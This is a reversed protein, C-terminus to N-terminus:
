AALELGPQSDADAPLHLPLVVSFVTGGSPPPVKSKVQITGGHRRVIESSVWLGLGTRTNGKTTVFPDFIQSRIDPRIGSGTDAVSLRVGPRAGDGLGRTNSVRIRLTGNQGIADLANGILNLVMHRLEGAKAVIASNERFDREVAIGASVFRANYIQLASDVVETIQVVTPKVPERYFALTQRVLESVRALESSAIRGHQKSEKLTASTEILYLLNTVSALPNNIEHALRGALSGTVALKEARRLAEEAAAQRVLYDRMQYQRGRSRLGSRVASVLTEPRVPRELLVLNGLPARMLMRRQSREGPQTILIVPLDSWSPQDAIASAWELIETPSLMEEALIVVGVGRVLDLRGSEATAAMVFPMNNSALLASILDRDWATPVVVVVRLATEDPQDIAGSARNSQWPYGM